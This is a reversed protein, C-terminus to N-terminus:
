LHDIIYQADAILINAADESLFKGSQARAHNIFAQLVGRADDIAGADIYAKAAQLKAMFSRYIGKPGSLAGTEYFETVRDMLSDITPVTPIEAFFAVLTHDMDMTVDYPDTVGVDVGDLEWHDLMYGADPIADVSVVTGEDYVHDGPAPDTSGMGDVAITLTYQPPVGEVFFASLTHDADMTVDYPNATGVDVGDLEWHDLLWGDAPLATVDVATGEDYLYDGPV